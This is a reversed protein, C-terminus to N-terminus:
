CSLMTQVEHLPSGDPELVLYSDFGDGRVGVDYYEDNINITLRLRQSIMMVIAEHVTLTWNDGGIRVIAGDPRKNVCTIELGSMGLLGTCRQECLPDYKANEWSRFGASRRNKSAFMAGNHAVHVSKKLGSSANLM